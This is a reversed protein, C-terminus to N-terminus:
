IGDGGLKDIVVVPEETLIWHLQSTDLFRETDAFMEAQDPETTHAFFSEVSEFWQITVGDFPPEHKGDAPWAAPHQEYRYVYNAASLRAILPGHVNHWHDLFEEHTTGPKRKLMTVLRIM